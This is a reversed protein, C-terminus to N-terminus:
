GAELDQRVALTTPHTSGLMDELTDTAAAIVERWEEQQAGRERRGRAGRRAGPPNRFSDGKM